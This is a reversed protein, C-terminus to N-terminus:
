TSSKPWSPRQINCLTVRVRVVGQGSLDCPYHHLFLKPFVASFTRSSSSLPPDSPIFTALPFLLFSM